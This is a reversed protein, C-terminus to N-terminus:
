IVVYKVQSTNVDGPGQGLYPAMGLFCVKESGRGVEFLTCTLM